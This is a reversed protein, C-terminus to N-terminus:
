KPQAEKQQKVKRKYSTLLEPLEYAIAVDLKNIPCGKFFTCTSQLSPFDYLPHLGFFIKYSDPDPLDYRFISDDINM